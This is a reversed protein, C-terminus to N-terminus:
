KNRPGRKSPLIIDQFLNKTSLVSRNYQQLVVGFRDGKSDDPANEVSYQLLAAKDAYDEIADDLQAIEQKSRGQSELLDRFAIFTNLKDSSEDGVDRDVFNTFPRYPNFQVDGVGANFNDLVGQPTEAKKAKIDDAYDKLGKNSSLEARIDKMTSGVNGGGRKAEAARYDAGGYPGSDSRVSTASKNYSRAM